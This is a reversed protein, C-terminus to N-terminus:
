IVWNCTNIFDLDHLSERHITFTYNIDKLYSYM